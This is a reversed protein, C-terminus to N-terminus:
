SQGGPKSSTMNIMCEAVQHLPVVGDVRTVDMVARPMGFVIATEESEVVVKGGANVITQAGNAGDRGMGTLVFALIKSGSVKVASHFLVDVSPMHLTDSPESELRSKLENGARKVLLHKGGPAIYANGPLLIENDEAEKVRIRSGRNLREALSATFGIPM